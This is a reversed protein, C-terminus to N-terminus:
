SSVEYFASKGISTASNPIVVLELQRCYSFANDPIFTVGCPVELVGNVTSDCRIVNFWNEAGAVVTCAKEIPNANPVNAPKFSPIYTPKTSAPFNTLTAIPIHTAAVSPSYTPKDSPRYTTNVIVNPVRIPVLSPSNTPIFLPVSVPTGTSIVETSPM